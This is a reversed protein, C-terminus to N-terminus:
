CPETQPTFEWTRVRFEPYRGQPVFEPPPVIGRGEGYCM